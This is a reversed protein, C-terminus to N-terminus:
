GAVSGGLGELTKWRVPEKMVSWGGPGVDSQSVASKESVEGGM